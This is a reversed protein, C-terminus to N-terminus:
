DYQPNLREIFSESLLSFFLTKESVHAEEIEKEINSLFFNDKYEKFTDIDIISGRKENPQNMNMVSCNAFQITNGFSSDQVSTTIQLNQISYGKTMEFSMTIYPLMDMEFFNIYRHGLRIVNDIIEKEKILNIITLVHNKFREWGIYPLSSSISLVDPGIQVSVDNTLLRYLPKYKFSPDSTRVAEPVQTIPLNIITGPYQVMLAGYILGFVANPDVKAKFRFEVLADIIPCPQINSPLRRNRKEILEEESM